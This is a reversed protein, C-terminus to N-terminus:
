LNDRIWAVVGDFNEGFTPCKVDHHKPDAADVCWGGGYVGYCNGWYRLDYYVGGKSFIYGYNNVLTYTEKVTCGIEKLKSVQEGM